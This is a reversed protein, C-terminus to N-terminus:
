FQITSFTNQIRHHNYSIIILCACIEGTNAGREVVGAQCGASSPSYPESAVVIAAAAAAEYTTTTTTSLNLNTIIRSTQYITTSCRQRTQRGIIWGISRNRNSAYAVSIYINEWGCVGRLTGFKEPSIQAPPCHCRRGKSARRETSDYALPWRCCDM